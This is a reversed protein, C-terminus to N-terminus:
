LGIDALLQWDLFQLFRLDERRLPGSQCRAERTVRGRSEKELTGSSVPVSSYGASSAEFSWHQRNVGSNAERAEFGLVRFRTDSLAFAIEGGTRMM